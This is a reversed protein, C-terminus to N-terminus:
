YGLKALPAKPPKPARPPRLAKHAPAVGILGALDLILESTIALGKGCSSLGSLVLEFFSELTYLEDIFSIDVILLLSVKLFYSEFVWLLFFADLLFPRDELGADM